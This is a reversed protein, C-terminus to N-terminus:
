WTLNPNNYTKREYYTVLRAIPCAQKAPSDSCSPYEVATHDNLTFAVHFSDQTSTSTALGEKNGDRMEGDIGERKM